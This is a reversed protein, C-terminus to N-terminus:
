IARRRNKLAILHPGHGMSSMVWMASSLHGNKKLSHLKNADLAEFRSSNITIVDPVKYSETDNLKLDIDVAELLDYDEFAKMMDPTASMGEHIIRLSRIVNELYSSHGGHPLFVAEGGSETIRPHTMDVHIKPDAAQGDAQPSFGILFPGRQQIAPIYRANWTDNEIFLNEDKDLGLLAVARLEGNEDKRFVIPYERQVESFESPFILAQNVNDGFPSGAETRVRLDAHTSNDLIVTESM